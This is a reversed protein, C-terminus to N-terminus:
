DKRLPSGNEGLRFLLVLMKLKRLWVCSTPESFSNASSSFLIKSSWKFRLPETNRGRVNTRRLLLMLWHLKKDLKRNWAPPSLCLATSQLPTTDRTPPFERGVDGTASRSGLTVTSVAETVSVTLLSRGTWTTRYNNSYECRTKKQKKIETKEICKNKCVM